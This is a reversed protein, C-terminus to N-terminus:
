RFERQAFSPPGPDMLPKTLGCPKSKQGKGFIEEHPCSNCSVNVLRDLKLGTLATVLFDLMFSLLGWSLFDEPPVPTLWSKHYSSPATVPLDLDNQIHANPGILRKVLIALKFDLRGEVFFHESIEEMESGLMSLAVQEEVRLSELNGSRTSILGPPLSDSPFATKFTEMSSAQKSSASLPLSVSSSSVVDDIRVTSIWSIGETVPFSPLLKTFKAPLTGPSNNYGSELLSSFRCDLPELPRLLECLHQRLYLESSSKKNVFCSSPLSALMEIEESEMSSPEASSSESSALFIVVSTREVKFKWFPFPSHLQKYFCKFRDNGSYTSSM